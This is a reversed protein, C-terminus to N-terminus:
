MQCIGEDPTILRDLVYIKAEAGKKRLTSAVVPVSTLEVLLTLM